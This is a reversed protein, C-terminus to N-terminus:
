GRRKTDEIQRELIARDAGLRVAQDMDRQADEHRGLMTYVLGRSSYADVLKPDLRIAENFDHVAREPQGLGVILSGRQYYLKANKPNLRIARSLYWIARNAQGWGGYIMGWSSYFVSLMAGLGSWFSALCRLLARLSGGM